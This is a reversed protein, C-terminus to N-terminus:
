GPCSGWPRLRVKLLRGSGEKQEDARRSGHLQLVTYCVETAFCCSCSRVSLICDSSSISTVAASFVRSSSRMLVSFGVGVNLSCTSNSSTAFTSFAM